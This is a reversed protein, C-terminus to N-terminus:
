IECGLVYFVFHAASIKTTCSKIAEILILTQRAHVVQFTCVSKWRNCKPGGNDTYIFSTSQLFPAKALGNLTHTNQVQPKKSRHACRLATRKGMYMHVYTLQRRTNQLVLLSSIRLVMYLVRAAAESGRRRM